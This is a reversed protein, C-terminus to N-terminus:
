TVNEHFFLELLTRILSAVLIGLGVVMLALMLGVGVPAPTSDAFLIPLALLIIGFGTASIAAEVSRLVTYGPHASIQERISDDARFVRYSTVLTEGVVICILLLSILPIFILALFQGDALLPHDIFLNANILRFFGAIGFVLTLLVGVLKSAQLPKSRVFSRIGTM